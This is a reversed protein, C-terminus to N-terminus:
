YYSEGFEEAKQPKKTLLVVLVVLLVLFVIALIVTLVFVPSTLETTESSGGFKVTSLLTEGSYVTVDFDSNSSDITVTKSSAAPIVVVEENALYKVTYVVLKNTPNLLVLDNGSKIAVDSVGNNITIEKTATDKSDDTEVDVQVTYVGSKVSYPVSLSITGVATDTDDDDDTDSETYGTVIDGFYVSKAIGLEPVSVTVFVDEVDNYGTNRLVVNVSMTEGAEVLNNTSVSKISVEYPQRLVTIDFSSSNDFDDGEIEEGEVTIELEVSNDVEDDDFDSPVKLTLKVRETTGNYLIGLESEVEVDGFEAKVVVDRADVDSTVDLKITITDGANVTTTEADIGNITVSSVTFEAASVTATLLLVSAILLFSVLINKTNM